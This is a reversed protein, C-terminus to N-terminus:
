IMCTPIEHKTSALKTALEQRKNSVISTFRMMQNVWLRYARNDGGFTSITRTEDSVHAWQDLKM